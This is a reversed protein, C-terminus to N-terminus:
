KLLAKRDAENNTIHESVVRGIKEGWKKRVNDVQEPTLSDFPVPEADDISINLVVKIGSDTMIEM